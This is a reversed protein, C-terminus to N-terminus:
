GQMWSPLTHGGTKFYVGNLLVLHNVRDRSRDGWGLESFASPFCGIDGVKGSWRLMLPGCGLVGLSCLPRESNTLPKEWNGAGWTFSVAPASDPM